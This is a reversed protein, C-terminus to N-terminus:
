LDMCKDISEARGKGEHGAKAGCGDEVKGVKSCGWGAVNLKQHM